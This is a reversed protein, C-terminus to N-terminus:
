KGKYSSGIQMEGSSFCGVILDEYPDGGKKNIAWQWDVIETNTPFNLTVGNDFLLRLVANKALTVDIVNKRLTGCIITSKSIYEKDVAETAWKCNKFLMGNLVDEGDFNINQAILWFSHFDLDFTDGISFRSYFNGVLKERLIELAEMFKDMTTISLMILLM